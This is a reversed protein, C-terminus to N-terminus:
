IHNEGQHVVTTIVKVKWRSILGGFPYLMTHSGASNHSYHEVLTSNIDLILISSEPYVTINLHHLM